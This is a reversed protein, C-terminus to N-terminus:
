NGSIPSLSFLQHISYKRLDKKENEKLVNEKNYLSLLM